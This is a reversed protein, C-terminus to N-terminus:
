VILVGDNGEPPSAVEDSWPIVRVLVDLAFEGHAGVQKQDAQEIATDDGAHHSAVFAMAAPEVIQGNIGFVLPMAQGAGDDGFGFAEKAVGAARFNIQLNAGGIVGDNFKIATDTIGGVVDDAHPLSQLTVLSGFLEYPNHGM